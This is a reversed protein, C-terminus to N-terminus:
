LSVPILPFLAQAETEKTTQQKELINVVDDMGGGSGPSREFRVLPGGHNTGFESIASNPM